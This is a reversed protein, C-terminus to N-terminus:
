APVQRQLDPLLLASGIDGRWPLALVLVSEFVHGLRRHHHFSRVNGAFTGTALWCMALRSSGHRLSTPVNRDGDASGCGVSISGVNNLIRARDEGCLTSPFVRGTPSHQPRRATRWSSRTPRTEARYLNQVWNGAAQQQGHWTGALLRERLYTQAISQNSRTRTSFRRPPASLAPLQWKRAPRCDSRVYRCKGHLQCDPIWRHFREPEILNRMLAPWANYAPAPRPTSRRGYWPRENSDYDRPAAAFAAGTGTIRWSNHPKSRSIGGPATTSSCLQRPGARRLLEPQQHHQQREGLQRMGHCFVLPEGRIARPGRITPQIEWTYGSHWAIM